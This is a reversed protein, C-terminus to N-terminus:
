TTQFCKGPRKPLPRVEEARTLLAKQGEWRLVLGNRTASLTIGCM